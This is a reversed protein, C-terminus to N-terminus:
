APKVDITLTLQAATAASAGTASNSQAYSFAYMGLRLTSGIKAYFQTSKQVQKGSSQNLLYTGGYGVGYAVQAYNQVNPDSANTAWYYATLTVLVRQGDKEGATPRIVASIYGPGSNQGTDTTHVQSQARSYGRTANTSTDFRITAYRLNYNSVQVGAGATALSNSNSNVRALTTYGERNLYASNRAPTNNLSAAGVVLSPLPFEIRSPQDRRELSEVGVRTRRARRKAADRAVTARSPSSNKTAIRPWM